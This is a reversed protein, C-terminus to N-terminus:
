WTKLQNVYEKEKKIVINRKKRDSLTPSGTSIAAVIEEGYEYKIIM